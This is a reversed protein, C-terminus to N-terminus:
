LVAPHSVSGLIEACLCGDVPGWSPCASTVGAQHGCPENEWGEQGCGCQEPSHWEPVRRGCADCALFPNAFEVFVHTRTHTATLM